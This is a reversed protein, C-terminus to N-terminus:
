AFRKMIELTDDTNFPISIEIQYCYLFMIDYLSSFTIDASHISFKSMAIKCVNKNQYLTLM